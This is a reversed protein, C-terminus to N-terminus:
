CRKLQKNNLHEANSVRGKKWVLLTISAIKGGPHAACHTENRQVNAQYFDQFPGATAAARTAAGKFFKETTTITSTLGRVGSKRSRKLQAV